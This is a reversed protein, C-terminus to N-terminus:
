CGRRPLNKTDPNQLSLYSSNKLDKTNNLNSQTKPVESTRPLKCSRISCCFCNKLIIGVLLTVMHLICKKIKKM